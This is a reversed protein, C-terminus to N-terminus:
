LNWAAHVVQKAWTTIVPLFKEGRPGQIAEDPAYSLRMRFKFVKEAM